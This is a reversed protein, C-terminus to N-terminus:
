DRFRLTVERGKWNEEGLQRFFPTNPFDRSEIAADGWGRWFSISDVRAERALALARNIEDESDNWAFVVYKWEIHPKLTESRDRYAVLDKMNKYSVDFDAGVQYKEVSVQTAGDISFYLFDLDLAARRKEDTAVFTGNTSLILRAQPNHKRLLAIEEPASRSLFPEGLNHLAIEEIKLDGLIRAVREIEDLTMRQRTRTKVVDRDCSLCAYNCAVTNEVMVGKRPLAYTEIYTAAEKKPVRRLENCTECAPIPFKGRALETRFRRATEGGFVEEFNNERLSGIHGSGDFDRCNCSVSMDSNICINYNSQGHLANCYFHRPFVIGRLSKLWPMQRLRKVGAEGLAAKITTNLFTELM